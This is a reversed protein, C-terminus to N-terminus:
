FGLKDKSYKGAAFCYQQKTFDACEDPALPLLDESEIRTVRLRGRRGLRLSRSTSMESGYVQSSDLFSTIQNVQLLLFSLKLLCLQQKTFDACEDPALPLLDESEIRTVRLRGRRCLRLSRSTSM